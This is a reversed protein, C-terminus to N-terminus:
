VGEYEPWGEGKTKQTKQTKQPWEGQLTEIEAVIVQQTAPVPPHSEPTIRDSAAVFSVFKVFPFQTFAVRM